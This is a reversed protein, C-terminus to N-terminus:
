KYPIALPAQFLAPKLNASIQGAQRRPLGPPVVAREEAHTGPQRTAESRAIVALLFFKPMADFFSTAM